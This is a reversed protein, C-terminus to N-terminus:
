ALTWSLTRNTSSSAKIARQGTVPTQQAARLTSSSAACSPVDPNYPVRNRTKPSQPRAFYTQHTIHSSSILSSPPRDKM